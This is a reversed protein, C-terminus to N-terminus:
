KRLEWRGVDVAAFSHTIDGPAVLMLRGYNGASIEDITIETPPEGNVLLYRPDSPHELRIVNIPM